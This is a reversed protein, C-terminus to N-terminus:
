EKEGPVYKLKDCNVKNIADKPSDAEVLYFGHHWLDFVLTEFLQHKRCNSCVFRVEGEIDDFERTWHGKPKASDLGELYSKQCLKAKEKQDGGCCSDCTEQEKYAKLEKLWETLQKFDQSCKEYKKADDRRIAENHSRSYGSADDCRKCLKDQDEAIEECHKIAEDLTM